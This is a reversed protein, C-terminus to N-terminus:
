LTYLFHSPSTGELLFSFVAHFVFNIRAVEGHETFAGLLHL